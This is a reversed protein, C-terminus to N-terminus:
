KGSTSDDNNLRVSRVCTHPATKVWNVSCPSLADWRKRRSFVVVVDPLPKKTSEVGVRKIWRLGQKVGLFRAVRGPPDSLPLSASFKCPPYGVFGGRELSELRVELLHLDEDIATLEVDKVNPIAYYINRLEEAKKKKATSDSKKAELTSKLRNQMDMTWQDSRARASGSHKNKTQKQKM